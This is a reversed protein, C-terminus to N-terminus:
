TIQANENEFIPSNKQNEVLTNEPFNEIVTYVYVITKMVFLSKLTIVYYYCTVSLYLLILTENVAM